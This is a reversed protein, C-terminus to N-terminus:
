CGMERHIKELLESVWLCPFGFVWLHKRVSSEAAVEPLEQRVSRIRRELEQFAPYSWQALALLDGLACITHGEIKKTVEQLMDIEELKANGVKLREMIMWLWGSRGQLTYRGCVRM